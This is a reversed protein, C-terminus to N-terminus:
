AAVALLNAIYNLQDLTISPTVDPRLTTVPLELM